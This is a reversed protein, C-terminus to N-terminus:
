RDLLIEYFKRDYYKNDRLKVDNHSIGIIRGGYKECISDHLNETKNFEFDRIVVSWEIKQISKDDYLIKLFSLLDIGFIRHHRNLVLKKQDTIFDIENEEPIFNLISIERIKDSRRDRYARMFGLITNSDKDISCYEMCDWFNDKIELNFNLYQSLTYFKYKDKYINEAYIKELETKHLYAPKLM